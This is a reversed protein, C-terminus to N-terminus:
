ACLPGEPGDEWPVLTAVKTRDADGVFEATGDEHITFTGGETPQSWGYLDGEYYGPTWWIVDGLRVVLWTCHGDVVAAEVYYGVGVVPEEGEGLTQPGENPTPCTQVTHSTGSADQEELVECPQPDPAPEPVVTDPVTTDTSPSGTLADDAVAPLDVTGGDEATFRYAPVLYGDGSDDNAPLLVLSPEADVLVIEVPQPDPPPEVGPDPPPTCEIEEPAAETGEPPLPTPCPPAECPPVTVTGDDGGATGVATQSACDVVECIERGDPQVKCSETGASGPETACGDGGCGTTGGCGDSAGDPAVCPDSDGMVTTVPGDPASAPAGGSCSELAPDPAACPDPDSSVGPEQPAPELVAPSGSQANAREIAERTDLLPYEGLAEPQGLSGSGSVVEGGSGVEVFSSLGSPIGDFVPEVTVYWDYGKDATVRAGDVDVGSAAVVGLAIDRAEDESPLDPAPGVECPVPEVAARPEPAVSEPEVPNSSVCTGDAGAIVTTTPADGCETGPECPQEEVGTTAECEPSTPLDGDCAATGASGGSVAVGEASCTVLGDAERVCDGSTANYSWHVGGGTYIGLFGQDAPGTVSWTGDPGREVEGELGLADALARIEAEDVDGSMRHATAEGGLAPLDDGPVYTVWAPMSSDAAAEGGAGASRAASALDVPLGPRPDGDDDASTIVVAGAAVAVAALVGWLAPPRRSRITTARELDLEEIHENGQEDM